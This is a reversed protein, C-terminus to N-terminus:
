SPGRIDFRCASGSPEDEHELIERITRPGAPERQRRKHLNEPSKARRMFIPRRKTMARKWRAKPDIASMAVSFRWRSDPLIGVWAARIEFRSIPIVRHDIAKVEPLVRRMM